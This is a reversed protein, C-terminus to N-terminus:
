SNGSNENLTRIINNLAGQYTYFHNYADKIKMQKEVVVYDPISQLIEVIRHADKEEIIVGYDEFNIDFCNIFKDSIYVPITEYQL